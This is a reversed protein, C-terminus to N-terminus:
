NCGCGGGSAGTGGTSGERNELAHHLAAEHKAEADFKMTPDALIARREPPVTACGALACFVVALLCSPAVIRKRNM